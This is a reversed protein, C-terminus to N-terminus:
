CLISYLKLKQSSIKPMILLTKYDKESQVMKEKSILTWGKLM